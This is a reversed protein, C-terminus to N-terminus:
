IDPRLAAQYRVQRPCLRLLLQVEDNVTKPLAKENLELSRSSVAERREACDGGGSQRRAAQEV